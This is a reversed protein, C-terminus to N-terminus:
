NCLTRQGFTSAVMDAEAAGISDSWRSIGSGAENAGAVDIFGGNEICLAIGHPRARWTEGHRGGLHLLNDARVLIGRHGLLDLRRSQM